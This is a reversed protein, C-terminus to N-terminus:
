CWVLPRCAKSLWRRMNNQALSTRGEQPTRSLVVSRSRPPKFSSIGAFAAQSRNHKAATDGGMGHLIQVTVRQEYTCPKSRPVDDYICLLRVGSRGALGFGREGPEDSFATMSINLPTCLLLKRRASAWGRQSPPCCYWSVRLLWAVGDFTVDSHQLVYCSSKQRCPPYPPTHRPTPPFGGKNM